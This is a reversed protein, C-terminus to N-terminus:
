GPNKLGSQRLNLNGNPHITRSKDSRLCRLTYVMSIPSALRIMPPAKRLSVVCPSRALRCGSSCTNPPYLRCLQPCLERSGRLSLRGFPRSHGIMSSTFNGCTRSVSLYPEGPPAKQYGWAQVSGECRILTAVETRISARTAMGNNWAIRVLDRVASPVAGPRGDSSNAQCIM